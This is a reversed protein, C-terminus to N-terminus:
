KFDILEVDFKLISNEKISGTAREGYALSSPIYLTAKAGKNLLAIGEDWGAIVRGQGLVFSFPQGRDYSSDFKTGDMLTGHYHVTVNSGPTANDGTGEQTIVYRLGSETTIATINNEILYKDIEEGDAKILGAANALREADAVARKEQEEIRSKEYEEKQYAQFEEVTRMTLLKVYFTLSSKTDLSDPIVTKFTNVFLDEASIMFTASDGVNLIGLAEYILGTTDWAALNVQMPMPGRGQESNWQENGNSNFYQMHLQIVTSDALKTGDGKELITVEIGSKTTRKDSCAVSLFSLAIIVALTNYKM